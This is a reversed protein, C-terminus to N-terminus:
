LGNQEIARESTSTPTTTSITSSTSSSELFDTTTYSSNNMTLPKDTTAPTLEVEMIKNELSWQRIEDARINFIWM